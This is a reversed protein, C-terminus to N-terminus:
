PMLAIFVNVIESPGYQKWEYFLIMLLPELSEVVAFVDVLYYQTICLWNRGFGDKIECRLTLYAQVYALYTSRTRNNHRLEPVFEARRDNIVENSFGLNSSCEIYQCICSTGELHSSSNLTGKDSAQRHQHTVCRSLLEFGCLRLTQQQIISVLELYKTAHVFL